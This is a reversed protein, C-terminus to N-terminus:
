ERYYDAVSYKTQAQIASEEEIHGSMQFYELSDDDVEVQVHENICTSDNITYHVTAAMANTEPYCIIGGVSEEDFGLYIGDMNRGAFKDKRVHIATCRDGILPLSSLDCVKSDMGVLMTM